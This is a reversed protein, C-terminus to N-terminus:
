LVKVLFDEITFLLIRQMMSSLQISAICFLLVMYVLVVKDDSLVLDYKSKMGTKVSGVMDEEESESESEEEKRSARRFIYFLM